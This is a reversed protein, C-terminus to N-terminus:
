MNDIIVNIKSSYSPVSNIVGASSVYLSALTNAGTQIASMYSPDRTVAYGNGYSAMIKFGVNLDTADTTEGSLSATQTQARSLLSPDLTQGYMYWIWGPFFGSGWNAAATQSNWSSYTRQSNLVTAQPFQSTGIYKLTKGLQQQALQLAQDTCQGRMSPAAIGVLLSLGLLESAIRNM